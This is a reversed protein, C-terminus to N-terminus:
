MDTQYEQAYELDVMVADPWFRLHKMKKLYPRIDQSRSWAEPSVLCTKFGKLKKVIHPTLPLQTPVDIWVWDVVGRFLEVAEIPELESFRVAVSQVKKFEPKQLKIKLLFPNEVDLLFYHSPPIKFHKALELCRFETGTDKINFIIFTHRFKKLYEDLWEGGGSVLEHNLYLRDRGPDYRVDVEVGWEKPVKTLKAVTNICHAIKLM